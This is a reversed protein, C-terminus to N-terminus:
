ENLKGIEAEIKMGNLKLKDKRALRAAENYNM